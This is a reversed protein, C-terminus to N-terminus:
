RSRDRIIRDSRQSFGDGAKEFIDRYHMEDEDSKDKNESM